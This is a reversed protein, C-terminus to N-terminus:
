DTPKQRLRPFAMARQQKLDTAFVCAPKSYSQSHTAGVFGAALRTLQPARAQYIFRGLARADAESRLVTGEEKGLVPRDGVHGALANAKWYKLQLPPAPCHATTCIICNLGWATAWTAPRPTQGGASSSRTPTTFLLLLLSTFSIM